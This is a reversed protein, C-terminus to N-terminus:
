SRAYSFKCTSITMAKNRFNNWYVRYFRPGQLVKLLHGRLGSRVALIFFLRPDLDLLALFFCQIRCNSRRRNLSRQGLRCLREQYPLRHSGKVLRTSLPKIQELCDADALLNLSCAQMAYELHATDYVVHTKSQPCGRQFQGSKWHCPIISTFSAAGYCYQQM